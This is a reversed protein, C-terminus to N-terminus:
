IDALDAYDTLNLRQLPGRNVIVGIEVDFTYQKNAIVEAPMHKLLITELSRSDGGLCYRCTHNFNGHDDYMMLLLRNANETVGARSYIARKSDFEAETLWLCLTSELIKLGHRTTILFRWLDYNDKEILRYSTDGESNEVLCKVLQISDIHNM